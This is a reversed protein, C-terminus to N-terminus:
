SRGSCSCAARAALVLGDGADAAIRRGQDGLIDVGTGSAIRASVDIVITLVNVLQEGIDWCITM